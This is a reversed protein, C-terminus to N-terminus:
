KLVEKLCKLRDIQAIGKGQKPYDVSVQCTGAPTVLLMGRSDTMGTPRNELKVPIGAGVGGYRALYRLYLYSVGM